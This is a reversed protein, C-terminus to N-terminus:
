LINSPQVNFMVIQVFTQIVDMFIDVIFYPFYSSMQVVVLVVVVVVVVVVVLVVVVVVPTVCYYVLRNAAM